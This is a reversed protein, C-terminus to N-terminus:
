FPFTSSLAGLVLFGVVTVTIITLRLLLITLLLITLTALQTRYSSITPTAASVLVSNSHIKINTFSYHSNTCALM